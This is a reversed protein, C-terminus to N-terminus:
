RFKCTSLFDSLFKVSKESRCFIEKCKEVKLELVGTHFNGSRRVQRIGKCSTMNSRPNDANANGVLSPLWRHNSRDPRDPVMWSTPTSTHQELLHYTTIPLTATWKSHNQLQQVRFKLPKWTTNFKYSLFV